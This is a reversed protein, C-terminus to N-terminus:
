PGSGGGSIRWEGNPQRTLTYFWTHEGDPMSIDGGATTLTTAFVVENANPRAPEGGISYTTVRLAGCLEGNGFRFTPATMARAGECNGAVVEDLYMKLNVRPDTAAPPALSAAETCGALAVLLVLAITSRLRM